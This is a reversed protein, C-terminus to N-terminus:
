PQAEADAPYAVQQGTITYFVQRHMARQTAPDIQAMLCSMAYLDSQPCRGHRAVASMCQLAYALGLGLLYSDRGTINHVVRINKM